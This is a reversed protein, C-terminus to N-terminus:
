SNWAKHQPNTQVDQNRLNKSKSLGDHKFIM